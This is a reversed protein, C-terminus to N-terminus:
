PRPDDKPPRSSASRQPSFPATSLIRPQRTPPTCPRCSSHTALSLSPRGLSSASAFFPVHVSLRIRFSAGSPLFSFPCGSALEFLSPAQLLAAAETLAPRCQSRPSHLGCRLGVPYRAPAPPRAQPQRLCLVSNPFGGGGGEWGGPAGRCPQAVCADQWRHGAGQPLRDDERGVPLALAVGERAHHRVCNRCRCQTERPPRRGVPGVLPGGPGDPIWVPHLATARERYGARTGQTRPQCHQQVSFNRFACSQGRYSCM